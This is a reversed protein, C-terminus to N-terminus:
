FALIKRFGYHIKGGRIETRPSVFQLTSSIPLAGLSDRLELKYLKEYIQTTDFLEGQPFSSDVHNLEAAPKSLSINMVSDPFSSYAEFETAVRPNAALAVQLSALEEKTLPRLFSSVCIEANFAKKFTEGMVRRLFILDKKKPSRSKTSFDFDLVDREIKAIRWFGKSYSKCWTGVDLAM